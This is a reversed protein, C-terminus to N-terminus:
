WDTGKGEGDLGTQAEETLADLEREVGMEVERKGTTTTTSHLITSPAPLWETPFQALTVIKKTRSKRHRSETARTDLPIDAMSDTTDQAQAIIKDLTDSCWKENMEGVPFLECSIKITDEWSDWRPGAILKFKHLAAPTTLPLKSLPAVLVIKRSAPHPEGQYHQSRLQIFQDAKPKKFKQRFEVLEKFQFQELRLYRLYERRKEMALITPRTLPFNFNDSMEQINIPDKDISKM